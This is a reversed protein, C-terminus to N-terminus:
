VTQTRSEKSTPTPVSVLRGGLVIAGSIFLPVVLNYWAPLEDWVLIYHNVAMYLLYLLAVVLAPIRSRGILTVVWGVALGAIAFVVLNLFLMPTRFHSLDGESFMFRAAERYEPWLLGFGIGVALFLFWWGACGVVIAAITRLSVKRRGREGHAM